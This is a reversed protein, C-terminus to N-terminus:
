RELRGLLLADGEKCLGEGGGPHLGGDALAAAGVDVGSAALELLLGLTNQIQNSQTKRPECVGSVDCICVVRM